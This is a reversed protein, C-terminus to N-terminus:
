KADHVAGSGGSDRFVFLSAAGPGTIPKDIDRIAIPFKQVIRGTAAQTKEGSFGTLADLGSCVSYRLTHTSNPLTPDIFTLTVDFGYCKPHSSSFYIETYGIEVRSFTQFGELRRSVDPSNLLDAFPSKGRFLRWREKNSSGPAAYIVASVCRIDTNGTNDPFMDCILECPAQLENFAARHALIVRRGGYNYAANVEFGDDSLRSQSGVFLKSSFEDQMLWYLNRLTRAYDAHPSNIVAACSARFSGRQPVPDEAQVTHAVYLLCLPLLRLAFAKM